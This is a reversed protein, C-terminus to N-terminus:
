NIQFYWPSRGISIVGEGTDIHGLIRRVALIERTYPDEGDPSLSSIRVKQSSHIIKGDGIYMAVHTIKLPKNGNAPSGFFLLDGAKMNSADAKVAEGCYVMERANRPLLVGCQMYAFKVLGSCDFGKPSIGGWVYPAGVYRKAAAVLSEADVCRTQQWKGFDELSCARAWGRKGSPLIVEVWDKHRGEAKRLLCLRCIDCIRESQEDAEAYVYDAEATCIWKPAALYEDKAATDMYALALDNAWAVYPDPAALKRWYRDADLVQVVTGMLAQTENSSEYDPRIRLNCVSVDVVAWRTQASLSLASLILAFVFLKKM